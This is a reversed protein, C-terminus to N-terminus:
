KQETSYFRLYVDPLQFCFFSLLVIIKQATNLIEHAAAWSLPFVAPLGISSVAIKAKYYNYHITEERM